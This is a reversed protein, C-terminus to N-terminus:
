KNIKWRVGLVTVDDFQQLNGKWKDFTYSLIQKQVQMPEQSILLLLDKLRQKKFKQERGQELGGFQDFYGDSFIYICDGDELEVTSKEFEKERKHLGIPCRTGKIEFLERNRIIFLSNYAGSFQMINTDTNIGCLAMDMGNRNNNGFQNFISKIEARLKELIKDSEFIREKKIIQTLFTVGLISLFAGAVGHGTCDAVTFFLKNGIKTMYYFDGGVVDRSVHYIFHEGLLNETTKKDPFLGSQIKQAYNIGETIENNTEKLEEYLKIQEEAQQLNIKKLQQKKIEAAIVIATNELFSTHADDKVYGYPVYLNIVGLVKNSFILPINYHGHKEIKTPQLKHGAVFKNNFLTKKQLLAKGCLCEGPKILKCNEVLYEDLGKQVAPELNGDENTLFICGKGILNMSPLELIADLADQLFDNLSIDHKTVTKLIEALSAQAQIKKQTKKLDDNISLIEEQQQLTKDLYVSKDNYMKEFAKETKFRTYEFINTLVVVFLYTFVVRILIKHPYEIMFDIPYVVFYATIIILILSSLTGKRNGLLLISFLPYTYYWYLGTGDKGIFSFISFMLIFIISTVVYSAFVIKKKKKFIILNILIILFVTYIAIAKQLESHILRLTGFLFLAFMGTYSFLTVIIAERVNERGFEVKFKQTINKIIEAM